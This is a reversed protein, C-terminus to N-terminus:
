IRRHSSGRAVRRARAAGEVVPEHVALAAPSRPRAPEVAAFHYSRVTLRPPRLELSVVAPAVAREEWRLAIPGTM